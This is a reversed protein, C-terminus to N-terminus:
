VSRVYNLTMCAFVLLMNSWILTSVKHALAAGVAALLVVKLVPLASTVLLYWFRM